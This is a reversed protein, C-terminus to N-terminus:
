RAAKIHIHGGAIEPGAVPLIAVNAVVTATM